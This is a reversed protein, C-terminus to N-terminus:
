PGLKRFELWTGTNDSGESIVRYNRLGAAQAFTEYEEPTYRQPRDPKGKADAAM